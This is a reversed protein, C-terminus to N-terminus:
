RLREERLSASALLRQWVLQMSGQLRQQRRGLTACQKRSLRTLLNVGLFITFSAELLWAGVRRAMGAIASLNRPMPHRGGLTTGGASLRGGGTRGIEM